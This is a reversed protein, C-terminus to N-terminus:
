DDMMSIVTSLVVFDDDDNLNPLNRIGLANYYNVMNTRTVRM